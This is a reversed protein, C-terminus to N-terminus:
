CESHSSNTMKHFFINLESFKGWTILDIVSKRKYWDVWIANKLAATLYAICREKEEVCCTIRADRKDTKQLQWLDLFANTKFPHDTALKWREAYVSLSHSFALSHFLVLAWNEGDLTSRFREFALLNMLPVFICLLLFLLLFNQM